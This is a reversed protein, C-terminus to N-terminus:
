TRMRLPVHFQVTSDGVGDHGDLCDFTDFDSEAEFRRPAPGVLEDLLREGLLAHEQGDAVGGEADLELLLVDRELALDLAAVRNEAVAGRDPGHVRHDLAHRRLFQACGELSHVGTM